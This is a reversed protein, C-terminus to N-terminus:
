ALMQLASATIRLLIGLILPISQPGISEQPEQLRVLNLSTPLLVSLCGCSDMELIWAM